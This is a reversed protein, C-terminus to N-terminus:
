IHKSLYELELDEIKTIDMWKLLEKMCEDCLDTTKNDIIKVKKGGDIYFKGCRDCKLAKM